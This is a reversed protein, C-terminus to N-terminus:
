DEKFREYYDFLIFNRVLATYAYELGENGIEYLTNMLQVKVLFSMDSEPFVISVIPDNLDEVAVPTISNVFFNYALDVKHKFNKDNNEDAYGSSRLIHFLFIYGVIDKITDESDTINRRNRLRALKDDIRIKIMDVPDSTSCINSPELASNGYAANKVILMEKVNLLYEKIYDSVSM